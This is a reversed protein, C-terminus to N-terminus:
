AVVVEGHVKLTAAVEVAVVVIILILLIKVMDPVEIESAIRAVVVVAVVVVAIAVVFKWGNAIRREDIAFYGSDVFESNPEVDPQFGTRRLFDFWFLARFFPSNIVAYKYTFNPRLSCIM